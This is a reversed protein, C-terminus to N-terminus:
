QVLWHMVNLLFQANQKAIPANMGMPHRDPGTIQASFMAAEGFVAVRGTGFPLVAGQLHGKLSLPTSENQEKFLHVQSGFVLLPESPGEVQFSTGTFTAVENIGKTIRHDMLTGDVRRFVLRGSSDKPDRAMGSSFRVGFARGLDAAAVDFPAHDAILFLSGGGAVWDRVATVEEARLAAVANAMVLVRAAILTQPTFQTASARVVFGDRKLLEAFPLYRGTATHFNDHAEDILVVPGIGPPYAPQEIPPHFTTDAVQQADVPAAAVLVLLSLGIRMQTLCRPNM